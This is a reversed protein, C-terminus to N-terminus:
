LAYMGLGMREVIKRFRPDGRLPALIPGAVPTVYDSLSDDHLDVARNLWLLAKDNDGLGLYTLAVNMPETAGRREFDKLMKSAEVRHGGHALSYAAMGGAFHGYSVRGWDAAASDYKGRLMENLAPGDFQRADRAEKCPQEALAFRALTSARQCLNDAIVQSLPDLERARKLETLSEEARGVDNLWFAHWAHATAFNPDLAIARRYEEEAESWRWSWHLAAALATHPEALTSDIRLAHSSAERVRDLAWQLPYKDYGGYQPLLVYSSALAAYARAFSSDRAVASQFDKIGALIQWIGRRNWEFLGRLYLDYAVPDNTGRSEVAVDAAKEGRLSPTLATVIAETLEDQVKFV